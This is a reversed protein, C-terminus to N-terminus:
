KRALAREFAHFRVWCYLPYAIVLALGIWFNSWVPVDRAVAVSYPMESIMPDASAELTLVYNGPPMSPVLRRKRQSGESWSGNDYGHYYQVGQEFSAAVQYNDTRVLNFDVELWNNEVPADLTVELAQRGGPIDFPHSVILGNTAAQRFTYSGDFVQRSAARKASLLQIGLLALILLPALWRLQRWKQAYANPQNLYVGIPERLPETLGFAAAVAEPEIYEGQSWTEEGLQPYSERSLIHPAAVFDTVHAPMGVAVKWYFEGLVYDTRVQSAAFIRYSEGAFRAHAVRNVIKLLGGEDVEPREFLRRVVSWHGNYTVLWLFGQWPNFLLYEFWGSFNDKVQQFGIVEYEVGVLKGRRGLPIKPEIRQRERAGRILELEPTATDILSGCSGCTASMSMGAARLEVTAACNPCKLSATKGRQVERAEESWGPVPRLMTFKLDDFRAYRGVFLRTGTDSFEASAFQNDAGTLDVSLAKRGPEAAFPLEGESGLCTTEKRDVVRYTLGELKIEKGNNLGGAGGPFGAPVPIEFSAMFFGQAEAVWGWRNDGFLACWENWSRRM